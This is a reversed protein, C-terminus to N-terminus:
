FIDLSCGPVKIETSFHNKLITLAEEFDKGTCIFKNPRTKKQCVRCTFKDKVPWSNRVPVKDYFILQWQSLSMLNLMVIELTTEYM